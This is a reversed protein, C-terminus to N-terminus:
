ANNLRGRMLEIAEAAMRLQTEAANAGEYKFDDRAFKIHRSIRRLGDNFDTKTM